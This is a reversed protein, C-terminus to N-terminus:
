QCLQKLCSPSEGSAGLPVAPCHKLFYKVEDCSTMQACSNRSDCTYFTLPEDADSGPAPATKKGPQRASAAREPHVSAQYKGWGYWGAAVLVLILILRLM